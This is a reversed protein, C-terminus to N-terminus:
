VEVERELIECIKGGYRHLVGGMKMAGEEEGYKAVKYRFGLRVVFLRWCWRGLLSVNLEM